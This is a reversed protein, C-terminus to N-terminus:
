SAGVFLVAQKLASFGESEVMILVSPYDRGLSKWVRAASSSTTGASCRDAAFYFPAGKERKTIERITQEYLEKGLGMGAYEQSELLSQNVVWVHTADHGFQRLQALAEKCRSLGFDATWRAANLGGILKRGDYVRMRVDFQSGGLARFRPKFL